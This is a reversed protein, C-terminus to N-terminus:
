EDAPLPTPMETGIKMFPQVGEILIKIKGGTLNELLHFANQEPFGDVM